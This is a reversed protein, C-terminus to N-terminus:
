VEITTTFALGKERERWIGLEKANEIYLEV